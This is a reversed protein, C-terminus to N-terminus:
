DGRHFGPNGGKLRTGMLCRIDAGAPMVFLSVAPSETKPDDPGRGGDDEEEMSSPSPLWGQRPFTDFKPQGSPRKSREPRNKTPYAGPVVAM